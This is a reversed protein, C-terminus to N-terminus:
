HCVEVDCCVTHGFHPKASIALDIKPADEEERVVLGHLWYWCMIILPSMVFVFRVLRYCPAVKECEILLPVDTAAAAQGDGDKERLWGGLALDTRPLSGGLVVDM